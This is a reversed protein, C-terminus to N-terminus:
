TMFLNMDWTYRKQFEEVDKTFYFTTVLSGVNAQFKNKQWGM